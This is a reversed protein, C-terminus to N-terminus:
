EVRGRLKNIESKVMKQITERIFTDPITITMKKSKNPMMKFVMVQFNKEDVVGTYPCCPVSCLSYEYLNYTKIDRGGQEDRFYDWTKPLFGISFYNLSGSRVKEFLGRSFEDDDFRSKALLAKYGQFKGPRIWIPQGIPINGQRQDVGHSWLFAPRYGPEILCGDPDLRDGARDRVYSSIAHTITLGERDIEQVKAQYSKWEM